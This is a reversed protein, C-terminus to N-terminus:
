ERPPRPRNIIYDLGAARWRPTMLAHHAEDPDATEKGGDDDAELGLSYLCFERPDDPTPARRKYGFASASIPDTPLREIFEPELQSLSEPWKGHRGRYRALALIILTAQRQMEYRDRTWPLRDIASLFEKLFFYKWPLDIVAQGLDVRHRARAQADLQAQEIMTDFHSNATDTTERRSPCREGTMRMIDYQAKWHNETGKFFEDALFEGDGRGDDTHFRQILDLVMLREGEIAITLSALDTHDQVCEMARKVTDGDCESESISWRLENMVMEGAAIAVLHSIPIPQRSMAQATRLTRDLAAIFAESNREHLAIRMMAASVKSLDRAASLEPLLINMIMESPDGYDERVVRPRALAADIRDLVGSTRIRELLVQEAAILEPDYPGKRVRDFGRITKLLDSDPEIGEIDSRVIRHLEELAAALEDWGNEGEPQTAKALAAYQEHYNVPQHAAPPGSDTLSRVVIASLVTCLIVTITLLARRSVGGRRSRDTIRM